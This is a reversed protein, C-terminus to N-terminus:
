RQITFTDCVPWWVLHEVKNQSTHTHARVVYIFTCAQSVLTYKNQYFINCPFSQSAAVRHIPHKGRNLSGQSQEQKAKQNSRSGQNRELCLAVLPFQTNVSRLNHNSVQSTELSCLCLHQIEAHGNWTCTLPLCLCFCM